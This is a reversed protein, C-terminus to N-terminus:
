RLAARTTLLIAGAVHGTGFQRTATPADLFRIELLDAVTYRQLAEAGGYRVRDVYVVIPPQTGSPRTPGRGHLWRPRLREVLQLATARPEAREMEAESIVNRDSAVRSRTAEDAARSGCASLTGALLVALLVLVRAGYHRPM